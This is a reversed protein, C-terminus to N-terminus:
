ASYSQYVAVWAGSYFGTQLARQRGECFKVYNRFPREERFIKIIQKCGACVMMENTASLLDITELCCKNLTGTQEANSTAPELPQTDM